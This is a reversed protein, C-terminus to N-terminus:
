LWAPRRTSAVPTGTTASSCPKCVRTPSPARSVPKLTSWQASSTTSFDYMSAGIVGCARAAQVFGRVQASTSADAVGGIAHIPVLSDGTAQRIIAVNRVTYDYAGRLTHTRYTFYGMPLFVDYSDAMDLYPFNPWYKPLLQMGRPSPIIAGLPYSEGVASRIAASLGLLRSTRLSVKRVISAEVDLAFSDFRQGTRTRLRIAALSRRLDRAPNDFGPLYWAVVKLGAAHASEIFRQIAPRKVVDQSVHYNGTELFLTQVGRRKMGAVAAPPNKFLKGDYIDVWTALGRYAALSPAQATGAAGASVLVLGALV